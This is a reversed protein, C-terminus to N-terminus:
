FKTLTYKKYNSPSGHVKQLLDDWKKVTDKIHFNQLMHQRGLNGIEKLDQSFILHMARAITDISVWDQYIYPTIPHGDFVQMEPELLIGFSGDLKTYMQETMGGTKTAIVPTGTSLSEGVSLGFGESHSINMTVDAVNYMLNLKSVDLSDTIFAIPTNVNLINYFHLLDTGATPGNVDTHMLLLTDSHRKCYIEFAKMLDMPRKRPMNRNNWFIIKKFNNSFKVSIQEFLRNKEENIEDESLPHFELPDFGHPIYSNDVDNNLLLNHSFQSITVIEDCSKYWPLNYYPFPGNDWTHYLILKSKHRIENDKTFVNMFGHPDGFLVIVDPSERQIIIKLYQYIQQIGSFAQPVNYFRIGQFETAIGTFNEKTHNLAIAAHSIQYSGTQQLGKLLKFGQNSVGSISRIDDCVLLLKIQKM